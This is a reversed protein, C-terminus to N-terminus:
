QVNNSKQIADVIYNMDGVSYRQDVPIPLVNKV